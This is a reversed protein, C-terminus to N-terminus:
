DALQAALQDSFQDLWDRVSRLNTPGMRLLQKQLPSLAELEADAFKYMVKPRVLPIPDAPLPIAYIRSLADALLSRPARPDEGFERLAEFLLPEFKLFVAAARAPSVAELAEVYRDYRAYSAPDIAARGAVRHVVFKGSPAMFGLLNRPYEGRSANELVAAFTRVLESEGLLTALFTAAAPEVEERLWDDSTNLPPLV